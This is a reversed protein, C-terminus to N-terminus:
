MKKYKRMVYPSYLSLIIIVFFDKLPFVHKTHGPVICYLIELNGDTQIGTSLIVKSPTQLDLGFEPTKKM